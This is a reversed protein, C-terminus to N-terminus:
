YNEELTGTAARACAFQPVTVDIIVVAAEEYDSEEIIRRATLLKLEDDGPSGMRVLYKGDLVVTRNFKEELRLCTVCGSLGNAEVADLLGSIFDASSGGSLTLKEGVVARSVTPLETRLLGAAEFAYSDRSRELVRLSASIAFFEGNLESYIAAPEASVRVNLGDPLKRRIKVSTLYPLKEKAAAEAEKRKFSFLGDGIGIGAAELLEAESYPMEGTVSVTGVVIRAACLRIIPLALVAILACSVLVGLLIKAKKRVAPDGATKKAGQKNQQETDAEPDRFIGEWRKKRKRCMVYSRVYKKENANEDGIRATTNKSEESM